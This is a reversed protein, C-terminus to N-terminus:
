RSIRANGAYISRLVGENEPMCYDSLMTVALAGGAWGFQIWEEKPYEKLIAYLLGSAFGDGGGIRDLVSIERPEEVFWEDEAWVIAGWTNRNADLVQRLTTAFVSADPYEKQVRGIM